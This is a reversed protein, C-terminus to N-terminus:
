KRTPLLSNHATAALTGLLLVVLPLLTPSVRVAPSSPPYPTPDYRQAYSTYGIVGAALKTGYNAVCDDAASHIVVSRGIVSAPHNLTLTAQQNVFLALIRGQSDATFTGMDGVHHSPSSPCGHPTNYPNFHNGVSNTSNSIDGFQHIHIAHPSNPALGALYIYAYIGGEDFGAFTINGTISAAGIFSSVAQIAGFAFTGSVPIAPSNIKIGIVGAFIEAGSNGTPNTTCDDQGSTVTLALGILCAPNNQDLSAFPTYIYANVNGNSNAVVNGLDGVHPNASSPCGHSAGFPNYHGGVAFTGAPQLIDGYQSIHIGHTSGPALGQMSVHVFVGGPAVFVDGTGVPANGVDLLVAQGALAGQAVGVVALAIRNGFLAGSCPDAQDHIVIALGVISNVADLALSVQTNVYTASLVGNSDTLFNGMDGAHMPLQCGHSANYPNFHSGVTLGLAGTIDGFQHIHIGYTASANLGLVLFTLSVGTPVTALQVIGLLNPYNGSTGAVKSFVATALPISTVPTPPFPITFGNALGIVGQLLRGGANGTAGTCFDPLAHVILSRGLVYGPDAPNVSGRFVPLTVAACGLVDTTFNGQL